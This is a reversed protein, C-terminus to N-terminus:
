LRSPMDFSGEIRDLEHVLRQANTVVSWGTKEANMVDFHFNGMRKLTNISRALIEIGNLGRDYDAQVGDPVFGFLRKWFKYRKEFDAQEYGRSGVPIHYNFVGLMVPITTNCADLFQEFATVADWCERYYSVPQTIIFEAGAELKAYLHKEAVQQKMFPNHGVGVFFEPHLAKTFRVLEISNKLRVEYCAEDGLAMAQESSVTKLTMGKLPDGTILLLNEFGLAKCRQFFHKLWAVSHNRTLHVITRRPEWVQAPLGLWKQSFVPDALLRMMTLNHLRLIGAASDTISIFAGIANCAAISRSKSKLARILKEDEADPHQLNQWYGLEQKEECSVPPPNFEISTIPIKERFSKALSHVLANNPEIKGDVKTDMSENFFPMEWGFFILTAM